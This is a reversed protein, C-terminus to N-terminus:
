LLKAASPLRSLGRYRVIHSNSPQLLFRRGALICSPAKGYDPDAPQKKRPPGTYYFRLKQQRASFDSSQFWVTLGKFTHIELAKKNISTKYICHIMNIKAPTDSTIQAPEIFSDSPNVFIRGLM